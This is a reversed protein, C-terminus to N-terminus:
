GVRPQAEWRPRDDEGRQSAMFPGYLRDLDNNMREVDMLERVRRRGAAGLRRALDGDSALRDLASALARPDHPPVLLGTEEHVVLEGVGAVSTAVVPLGRYMAESLARGVGERRSSMGYVDFVGLLDAIDDCEGLLRVHGVVGLDEIQRELRPRLPGEGCLLLMIRPYTAALLAVAEVLYHQAKAEVLYGVSGVIPWAAELGLARKAESPRRRPRYAAFDIGSYITVLKQRPAIGLVAAQQRLTEGVCIVRDTVLTVLREVVTYLRTRWDRRMEFPFGHVTHVVAPVGALWAAVRGLLGAKTSHTHVIRYHRARFLRYLHWLARLDRVPHPERVLHGVVHVPVRSARAEAILRGGPGCVLEVRYGRDLLGRLTLLTNRQAGGFPHSETIVHAIAHRRPHGSARGDAGAWAM